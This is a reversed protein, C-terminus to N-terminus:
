SGGQERQRLEEERRKLQNEWVRLRAAEERERAIDGWKGTDLSESPFGPSHGSSPYDDPGLPRRRPREFTSRQRYNTAGPRWGAFQPRGCILWVIAGIDFLVIVILIWAMKPLGRMLSEDTSIVDIICYVWLGFVLLGVLGDVQLM